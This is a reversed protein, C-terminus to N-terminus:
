KAKDDTGTETQPAEDKEIPTVNGPDPYDKRELVYIYTAGKYRSINVGSWGDKRLSNSIHVVKAAPINMVQRIRKGQWMGQRSFLKRFFKVTHRLDYPSVYRGDGVKKAGRPLTLGHVVPNGAAAPTSWATVSGISALVLIVKGFLKM